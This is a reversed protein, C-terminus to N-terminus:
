ILGCYRAYHHLAIGGATAANLSDVGPVMPIRVRRDALALAADGLGSGEHGVLLAIRRAAGAPEAGLLDGEPSLAVLTFGAERLRQLSAPWEEGRAWPVELSAGMSTRIAKRYLPDTTGPDLVVAGAGFARANRFLGGVNDANALRELVLVLSAEGAPPLIQDLTAPPPRRALALCGRHLNFGTLEALLDAPVVYVPLTALRPLLAARLASFAAPTVLVSDVRDASARVLREVVLRGEAVFRGLRVLLERDSVDRYPALCPDDLRDIDLRPM